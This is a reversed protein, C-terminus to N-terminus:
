VYLANYEKIYASYKCTFISTCQCFMWASILLGSSSLFDIIWLHPYDYHARLYRLLFVLSLHFVLFDLDRINTSLSFRLIYILITYGICFTNYINEDHCLVNISLEIKSVADIFQEIKEEVSLHRSFIYMELIIFM